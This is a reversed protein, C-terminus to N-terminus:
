FCLGFVGKKSAGMHVKAAQHTVLFLKVHGSGMGRFRYASFILFSQVMGRLKKEATHENPYPNLTRSNIMAPKGASTKLRAIVKSAM